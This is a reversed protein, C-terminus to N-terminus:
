ALQSEYSSRLQEVAKKIGGGLYFSGCCLIAADKDTLTYATKLAELNDEVLLINFSETRKLAL